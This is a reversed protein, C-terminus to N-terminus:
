KCVEKIVRKIRYLKMCLLFLSVFLAGCLIYPFFQM